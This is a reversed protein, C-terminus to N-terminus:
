AFYGYVLLTVLFVCANLVTKKLFVFSAIRLPIIGVIFAYVGGKGQFRENREFTQLLDYEYVGLVLLVFFLWINLSQSELPAKPDSLKVNLWSLFDNILKAGIFATGAFVLLVLWFAWWHQNFSSYNYIVDMPLVIFLFISFINPWSELFGAQVDTEGINVAIQRGRFYLKQGFWFGLRFALVVGMSTSFQLRTGLTVPLIAIVIMLTFPTAVFLLTALFDFDRFYNRLTFPVQYKESILFGLYFGSCFFALSTLVISLFANFLIDNEVPILQFDLRSALAAAIILFFDLWLDRLILKFPM